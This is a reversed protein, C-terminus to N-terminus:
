LKYKEKKKKKKQGATVGNGPESFLRNTMGRLFLLGSFLLNHYFIFIVANEIDGFLCFSAGYLSKCSKAHKGFRQAAAICWIYNPFKNKNKVDAM